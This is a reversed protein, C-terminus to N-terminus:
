RLREALAAPTPHAFLDALSLEVGLEEEVRQLLRAGLLSHGGHAFFNTSATVDDRDLAERWFGLLRAVVPDAPAPEVAPGAHGARGEALLADLARYDVKGNPNVPLAAVRRFEAPVAAPPLEASAHRWLAEAPDAESETEVFAVLVGDAGPDGAPVVAAARVDPHAALVAEVEGPEVRVGRLKLQRDARGRLELTGDPRWRGLDSTRYFRGFGPRRGFREATLRPRDHYGLAVGDGAICLEGTVGVPLPRGAPDAVFVRTNAIPRGIDVDGDAGIRRCTSYITTESPAYANRVEAGARVLRAALAPPLPEGGSLLRRGALEGRLDAAVVRWTTPTAQIVGVRRRVVVDLLDAARVRARDPAVVLRGGTTLPLFLELSSIDFTFTTLWLTGEGPRAGLEDAFHAVVNALGRHTLLSAKPKGTSGSTYVLFACSGPEPPHESGAGAAHAPPEPVTLATVADPVAVAGATLVARARSDELQYRLRAPPHDPDLPLYTAGARLVGLAAAALAAGRPAALAVVDGPRVGAARLLDRTGTAAHWLGAYSTTRDGEEVAVADPTAAVRAAVAEVVTAPEVPRATDNAAGIVAHDAPSWATVEGLPRDPDAALAVLLAEFRALLRDVDEADLADARHVARVRLRDDASTVFFELDYRSCGNEVLVPRAPMGALDFEAFGLGPLYNFLHRVLPARWPDRDRPLEAAMREAPVDTHALAELFTDRCRRAFARFGDAPEAAVRVPLVNVYYGVVGACGPPRVGAPTGIVQDDGAGHAALLVHYAALLVAAEPTRLLATLERVARVAAASLERTRAGGDATPVPGPARGCWLGSEPPRFGALLGRWFALGAESPERPAPAPVEGAAPAEGAAFAQYAAALEGLVVDGSVTDFVLHHVVLCFVDGDARSLVGARVLPRGDLTFPRAVFAALADPVPGDHAPLSRPHLEVLDAPLVQRELRGPGAVFVTRLAPHRRLLHNVAATLAVRDLRGDVAFVVALNNVGRGPLLQELLWLAEERATAATITADM